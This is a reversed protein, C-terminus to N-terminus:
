SRVGAVLMPLSCAAWEPTPMSWSCSTRLPMLVMGGPGCFPRRTYPRPAHAVIALFSRGAARFRMALLDERSQLVLIQEPPLKLSNHLWVECGGKIGSGTATAAPLASSAVMRCAAGCRHVAGQCTTEQLGVVTAGCQDFLNELQLRRASFQGSCLEEEPRLTLVNVSIVRLDFHGEENPVTAVPSRDAHAPGPVAGQPEDALAVWSWFAASWDWPTAGQEPLPRLRAPPGVTGAPVPIRV